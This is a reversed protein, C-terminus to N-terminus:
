HTAIPGPPGTNGSHAPYTLRRWLWELPGQSHSALWWRSWALMLAFLAIGIAYTEPVRLTGMMGLGIGYFIFSMVVSTAIYNTLAMRGADALARKVRPFTSIALLFAAAYALGLPATGALSSWHSQQHPMQQAYVIACPIGIAIGGLLVRWLFRRNGIL